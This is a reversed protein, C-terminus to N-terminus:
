PASLRYFHDLFVRRAVRCPLRHYFDAELVLLIAIKTGLHSSKLHCTRSCIHRFNQITFTAFQVLAWVFEENDSARNLKVEGRDLDRVKFTTSIAGHTQARTFNAVKVTCFKVCMQLRVQWSFVLWRPVLIAM